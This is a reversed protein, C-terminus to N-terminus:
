LHYGPSWHAWITMTGFHILVCYHPLTHCVGNTGSHILTCWRPLTHCVGRAAYCWLRTTTDCILTASPPVTVMTARPGSFSFVYFVDFENRLSTRTLRSAYDGDAVIRQWRSTSGDCTAFEFKGDPFTLRKCSCM